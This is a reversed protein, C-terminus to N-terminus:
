PSFTTVGRPSEWTLDRYLFLDRFNARCGAVGLAVQGVGLPEPDAFTLAQVGNLTLSLVGGHKTAGVEIARPSNCHSGMTIRLRPDQTETVVVGRRLLRTCRGEEAGIIFRYGSDAHEGDGALVLSIDHYPFHEHEGSEHGVTYESVDFAISVDSPAERLCWTFAPEQRGDGSLWYAWPICAMGSHFMWEGSAPVWDPEVRDFRYALAHSAGLTLNDIIAHGAAHVLAYGSPLPDEDRMSLVMDRAQGIIYPGDRSLSLHLPLDRGNLSATRVVEENRQLRLEAGEVALSYGRDGKATTCIALTVAKGDTQLLEASLSVDGPRPLYYRLAGRQLAIAPENGLVTTRSAGGIRQWLEGIFPQFLGHESGPRSQDSGDAVLVTVTDEPRAETAVFQTYAARGGEAIVGVKGSSIVGDWARAVCEDAVYGRLTPGLSTLRLPIAEDPFPRSTESLPTPTGDAALRQLQYTLDAGDRRAVFAYGGAVSWRALVGAAGDDSLRVTASVDCAEWQEISPLAIAINAARCTLWGGKTQWNGSVFHWPGIPLPKLAPLVIRKLDCVMFDDFRCDGDTRAYVGPRGPAATTLMLRELPQGAVYGRAEKGLVEVRLRYWANPRWTFPTPPAPRPQGEVVEVFSATAGEASTSFTLMAYNAVGGCRFVLGVTSNAAPQVSVECVYDDWVAEGTVALHEGPGDNALWCAGIPRNDVKQKPDWYIDIKYAGRLMEWVGDRAEGVFFDDAFEIAGIEQLYLNAPVAWGPGVVAGCLGPVFADVYGELLARRGTYARIVGPRRQVTLDLAPAKGFGGGVALVRQRKGQKAVLRSKRATCELLYGTSPEAEARELFLAIGVDQSLDAYSAFLDYRDTQAMEVSMTDAVTVSAVIIATSVVSGVCACVLTISRCM